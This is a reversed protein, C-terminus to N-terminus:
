SQGVFSPHVIRGSSQTSLLVIRFSGFAELIVPLRRVFCHFFSLLLSRYLFISLFFLAAAYVFAAGIFCALLAWWDRRGFRRGLIFELDLILSLYSWISQSLWGFTTFLLPIFLFLFLHLFIFLFFLRLLYQLTTVEFYYFTLALLDMIDSPRHFKHFTPCLLQLILLFLDDRFGSLWNMFSWIIYCWLGLLHFYPLMLLLDSVLAEIPVLSCCFGFSRALFRLRLFDWHLFLCFFCSDM